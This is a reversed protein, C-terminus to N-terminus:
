LKRKAKVRIIQEEAKKSAKAKALEEEKRKDLLALDKKDFTGASIIQMGEGLFSHIPEENLGAQQKLIVLWHVTGAPRPFHFEFEPLGDTLYIWESFQRAHSAPGAGKKWCLLSLEYTYCDVKYKGLFEAIHYLVNLKVTIKKETANVTVRAEGLKNLPYKLNVEMGELQKLLLFRNNLPEKRFRKQIAHYFSSDKLFGSYAGIIRNLEGALTNLFATRNYQQKLASKDKKNGKKPAKRVLEGYKSNVFVEDRFKGSLTISSKQKAM